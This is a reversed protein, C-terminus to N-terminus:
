FIDPDLQFIQSIHVSFAYDPMPLTRNLIRCLRVTILMFNEAIEYLFHM